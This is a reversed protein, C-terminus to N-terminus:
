KKGKKICILLQTSDEISTIQHSVIDFHPSIYRRFEKANWERVHCFNDPPGYHYWGRVLNREPTSIFLLEFDISKILEILTDPNALHEIVDSCIVIEAKKPIQDPQAANVWIRDPYKKKLFEYTKDVDVGVTNCDSFYKMLKFASGCGIDLINKHGYKDLYFRALEYVEKQYEDTHPTDDCYIEKKRHRYGRKIEYESPYFLSQLKGIFYLITVELRRFIKYFLNMIIPKPELYLGM